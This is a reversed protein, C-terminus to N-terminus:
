HSQEERDEGLCIEGIKEITKGLHRGLLAWHLTSPQEERRVRRGRLMRTPRSKERKGVAASKCCLGEEAKREPREKM